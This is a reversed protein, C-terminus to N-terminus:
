ASQDLRAQVFEKLRKLVLEEWFAADYEVWHDATEADFRERLLVRQTKTLAMYAHLQVREYEVMEQFLKERREKVEVVEGTEMIMGDTKGVLVVSFGSVTCIKKRVCRANRQTIRVNRDIEVQDLSSAERKSGRKMRVDEELATSLRSITTESLTQTILNESDQLLNSMQLNTDADSVPDSHKTTIADCINVMSSERSIQLTDCISERDKVDITKLVKMVSGVAEEVEIGINQALRRNSRWFQAIAEEQTCYPNLGVYKALDSANVQATMERQNMTAILRKEDDIIYKM